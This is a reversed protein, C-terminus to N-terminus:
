GVKQWYDMNMYRKMKAGEEQNDLRLARGANLVLLDVEEFSAIIDKGVHGWAGRDGVDLTYAKTRLSADMGALLDRAKNVNAQDYDILGLHMGRQRCLRATAFGVGSAAGTIIATKGPQIVSAM